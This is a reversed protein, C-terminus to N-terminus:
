RRRAARRYDQGHKGTHAKALVLPVGPWLDRGGARDRGLVVAAHVAAPGGPRLQAYPPRSFGIVTLWGIGALPVAAFPEAVFSM